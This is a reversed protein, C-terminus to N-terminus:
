AGYNEFDKSFIREVGSSDTIAYDALFGVPRQNLSPSPEYFLSLDVKVSNGEKLEQQWQQEMNFWNDANKGRNQNQEWHM